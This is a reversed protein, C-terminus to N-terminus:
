LENGWTRHTDLGCHIPQGQSLYRHSIIEFQSRCRSRCSVIDVYNHRHENPSQKQTPELDISIPKMQNQLSTKYLTYLNRDIPFKITIDLM